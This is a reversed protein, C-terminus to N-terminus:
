CARCTYISALWRKRKRAVRLFGKVPSIGWITVLPIKQEGFSSVPFFLQFRSFGFWFSALWSLGYFVAEVACELQFVIYIISPPVLLFPMWPQWRRWGTVMRRKRRAAATRKEGSLSDRKGRCSFQRAPLQAIGASRVALAFPITRLHRFKFVSWWWNPM